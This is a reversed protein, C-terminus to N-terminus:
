GGFIIFHQVGVDNEWRIIREYKQSKLFSFLLCNAYELIEFCFACSLGHLDNFVGRKNLAERTPPRDELEHVQETKQPSFKNAWQWQWRWIGNVFFGHEAVTYNKQLSGIHGQQSNTSFIVGIVVQHTSCPIILCGFFLTYPVIIIVLWFYFVVALSFSSLVCFFKNVWNPGFQGLRPSLAAM